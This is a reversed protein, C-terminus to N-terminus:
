SGIVVKKLGRFSGPAPLLARGYEELVLSMDVFSMGMGGYEEPVLMSFAGTGTLKEWIDRDLGDGEINARVNALNYNADLFGRTTEQFMYQEQSFDFDM